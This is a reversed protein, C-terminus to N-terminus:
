SRLELEITITDRYSGLLPSSAPAERWRLRVTGTQKIATADESSWGRGAGSASFDCGDAAAGALADSRCWGLERRGSDTGLAVALEYPMLTTIGPTPEISAMGGSESRVRLLFPTNCDIAFGTESEGARHIPLQGRIIPPSTLECRAPVRGKLDIRLETSAGLPADAASYGPGIDAGPEAMCVAPSALLLAATFAGTLPAHRPTM